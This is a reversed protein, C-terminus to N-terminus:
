DEEVDNFVPDAFFDGLTIQFGECVHLLNDIRILGSKENLFTSLTSCPVGSLKCLTWLNMNNEKMYFKIRKRIANSLKM